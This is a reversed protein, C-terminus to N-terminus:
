FNHHKILEKIKEFLEPTYFKNFKRTIKAFEKFLMLSFFEYVFAATEKCEYSGLHYKNKNFEIQAIYKQSKKHLRVGKIGLKNNSNMKSNAKNESITCWRLNEIINSETNRNIHDVVPKLGKLSTDGSQYPEPHYTELLHLEVPLNEIFKDIIGKGSQKSNKKNTSVFTSKPKKCITCISKMRKRGDQIVYKINTNGTDKKCYLCFSKVSSM